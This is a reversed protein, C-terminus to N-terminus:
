AHTSLAKGLESIKVSSLEGDKMRKLEVSGTDLETEGLGIAFASGSKDAAKMAGKLARDGFAIEVKFGSQRLDQAISLATVKAPHGLPIIFLDSAFQNALLVGESEAALLIRDVGLGFGIGSLDSGGEDSILGLESQLHAMFAMGIAVCEGHRLSYKAHKEVAHGFTHGYNLIERDFSEKFDGSVVDAKVQVARKILDLLLADDKRISQLDKDQILKLIKGDRIFGCKVVEALGAAFDRDSLTMFWSHDILVAQPSHFSGVLNKGYDLNAGTKGGIAADVAGAVSTPVAIWAIGRLYTAAAFGAIDTIAGGGIGVVLDTRTFGAAAFWNWLKLLVDPSKGEEGDPIVCYIFECDGAELNGIASKMSETTVIACRTHGTARATLEVRWECGILVDYKQEASVSIVQSM